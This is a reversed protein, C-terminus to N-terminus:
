GNSEEILKLAGQAKLSKAVTKALADAPEAKLISHRARLAMTGDSDLVIANLVLQKDKIEALCAVPTSCGAGLEALLAREVDLCVHSESHDIGSLM